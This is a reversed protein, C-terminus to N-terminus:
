QIALQASERERDIYSNYYVEGRCKKENVSVNGCYENTRYLNSKGSFIFAVSDVMISGVSRCVNLIFHGKAAM